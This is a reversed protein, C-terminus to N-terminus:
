DYQEVIDSSIEEGDFLLQVDSYNEGNAISISLSKKITEEASPKKFAVSVEELVFYEEGIKLAKVIPFSMFIPYGLNDDNITFEVNDKDLNAVIVSTGFITVLLTKIEVHSYNEKYRPLEHKIIEEGKREILLAVPELM